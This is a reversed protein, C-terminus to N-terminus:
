EYEDYNRRDKPSNSCLEAKCPRPGRCPNERAPSEGTIIADEGIRIISSLPIFMDQRTLRFGKGGTVFLGRVRGEPFEFCLDCVRGLHKGDAVSIVDKQKLETFTFEM